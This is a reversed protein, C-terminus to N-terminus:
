TSSRLKSQVALQVSERVQISPRGKANPCQDLCEPHQCVVVPLGCEERGIRGDVKFVTRFLEPCLVDECCGDDHIQGDNIVIIRDFYRLALELDHLVCVVTKSRELHVSRLLELIALQHEIDLGNLPEDLLLNNPDQALLTALRVRQREGGSLETLRRDALHEVQCTKMANDIADADGHGYGSFLRRHTHRGLAVHEAVTTLQPIDASQSLFCLRHALERKKIAGIPQSDLLVEGRQARIVGAITRLLTSKGSGNPGVIAVMEGQQIELSVGNLILTSGLHTHINEVRISM